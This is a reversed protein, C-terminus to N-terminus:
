VSKTNLDISMSIQDKKNANKRTNSFLVIM